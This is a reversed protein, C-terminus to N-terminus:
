QSKQPQMVKPLRRKDKASAFRSLLQWTGNRHSWIDVLFSGDSSRDERGVIAKQTSVLSVAALDCAEGTKGSPVLCRVVIDGVTFWEVNFVSMLDMWSKRDMPDAARASTVLVYDAALLQELRPMDKRKIADYLETELKTFDGTLTASQPPTRFSASIPSNPVTFSCTLLIAIVTFLSLAVRKM